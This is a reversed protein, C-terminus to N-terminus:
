RAVDVTTYRPPRVVSKRAAVVGIAELFSLAAGVRGQTVGLAYAVQDATAGPHGELYGLVREPRCTRARGPVAWQVAAWRRLEEHDAVSLLHLQGDPWEVALRLRGGSGAVLRALTRVTPQNAGAEIGRIAARSVGSREALEAVSL